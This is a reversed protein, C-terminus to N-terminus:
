PGLIVDNGRNRAENGIVGGSLRALRPDFTAALAIPIPMATATEQKVAVGDDTIFVSRLGVRPIAPTQGTHGDSAVGALLSLKEDQTLAGLLLAARHDPDLMTNCWPRQAVDGCASQATASAVAGTMSWAVVLLSLGRAIRIM